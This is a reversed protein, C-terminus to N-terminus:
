TGRRLWEALNVESQINLIARSKYLKGYVAAFHDRREAITVGKTNIM